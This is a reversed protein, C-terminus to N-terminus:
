RRNDHQGHSPLIEPITSEGLAMAVKAIGVAIKSWTDIEPWGVLLLINGKYYKVM